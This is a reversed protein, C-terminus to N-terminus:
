SATLADLETDVPEPAVADWCPNCVTMPLPLEERLTGPASCVACIDGAAAALEDALSLFPLPPWVARNEDDTHDTYGRDRSGSLNHARLNAELRQQREEARRHARRAEAPVAPIEQAWNVTALLTRLFPIPANIREPWSMGRERTSRELARAIATGDLRSTDIDFEALLDALAGIHRRHDPNRLYHRSGINIWQNRDLGPCAAILEAAALQLHLPRPDQPKEEAESSIKGARAGRARTPSKKGAHSSTSVPTNVGDHVSPDESVHTLSSLHGSAQDTSLKRAAVHSARAIRGLSASRRRQAPRQLATAHRPITLHWVSAAHTQVGGHHARAAAIELASLRRGTAMPAALGLDRLVYRVKRMTGPSCGARKAMTAISATIGRGTHQDAFGAVTEALDLVTKTSTEHRSAAARGTETDLLTTVVALWAKVAIVPVKSSAGDELPLSWSAGIQHRNLREIPDEEESTSSNNGSQQSCTNAGTQPRAKDDSRSM